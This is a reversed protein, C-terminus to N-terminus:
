GLVGETGSLIGARSGGSNTSLTRQVGPSGGNDTYLVMEFTATAPILYVLGGTSGSGCPLSGSPGAYDKGGERHITTTSTGYIAYNGGAATVDGDVIFTVPQNSYAGSSGSGSGATVNGIITITTGSVASRVAYSMDSSGGTVNGTVKIAGANSAHYFAARSATSGSLSVNGIVHVTGTSHNTRLLGATGTGADVLNATITRAISTAFRGTGSNTLTAVTIDQDITVIHGTAAVATDGTTPVVGGVWTGTSSWNGTGASTITAM